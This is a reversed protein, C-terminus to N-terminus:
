QVADDSGAFRQLTELQQQERDIERDLLTSSRGSSHRTIGTGRTSEDHDPEKLGQWGKEITFNIAAIAREPGWRAFKAMLKEAQTPKLAHKIEKRHRVWDAWATKFEETRLNEPLPIRGGDGGKPPKPPPDGNPSGQNATLPQRNATLMANADQEPTRENHTRMRQWKADASAKAKASKERYRELEEDCRKNHWGDDSKVFFENLVTEVAERQSKSVARVKRCVLDFVLPLPKEDRYYVRMLRTYALDEHWSLHATAAEYDGIHHQYHHM